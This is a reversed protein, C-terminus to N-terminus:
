SYANENIPLIKGSNICNIATAINKRMTRKFDDIDLDTEVKEYLDEVLKPFSIEEKLFPNHLKDWLWLGLIRSDFSRKIQSFLNSQTFILNFWKIELDNDLSMDCILKDLASYIRTLICRSKNNAIDYRAYNNINDLTPFPLYILEDNIDDIKISIDIKSPPSILDSIFLGYERSLQSFGSYISIRKDDRYSAQLVEYNSDVFMDDSVIMSIIDSSFNNSEIFSSSDEILSMYLLNDNCRYKYCLENFYKPDNYLKGEDINFLITKDKKRLFYLLQGVSDAPLSLQNLQNTIIPLIFFYSVLEVSLDNKLFEPSLRNSIVEFAVQLMDFGYKFKRFQNLKSLSINKPKDILNTFEIIDSDLNPHISYFIKFSENMFNFKARLGDLLFKNKSIDNLFKRKKYNGDLYLAMRLKLITDNYKDIKKDM